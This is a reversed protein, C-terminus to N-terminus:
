WKRNESWAALGPVKLYVRTHVISTVTNRYRIFTIGFVLYHVTMTDRTLFFANLEILFTSMNKLVCEPTLPETFDCKSKILRRNREENSGDWVRTHAPFLL